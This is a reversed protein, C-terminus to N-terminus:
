ELYRKFFDVTDACVKEFAKRTPEHGLAPRNAFGHITDKHVFCTFDIGDDKVKKGMVRSLERVERSKFFADHDPINWITPKDIAKYLKPKPEPHSLVACRILERTTPSSSSLLYEIITAGRCYGILLLTTYGEKLLDNLALEALKIQKGPFLFTPIWRWVKLGVKIWEVTSAIWSRNSLEEPYSEAVNTFASEPPPYPIYDPVFVHVDLQDAYIDALIKCNNIQLGFIDSFMVVAVEEKRKKKKTTVEEGASQISPTAHYRGVKRRVLGLDSPPEFVGRPTGPLISGKVCCPSFSTFSM